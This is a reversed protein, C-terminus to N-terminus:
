KNVDNLLSIIDLINFEGDMNYDRVTKDVSSIDETGNVSKLILAADTEDVKSDNNVNGIYTIKASSPYLNSNDAKTGKYCYVTEISTCGTFATTRITTISSPIIVTKLSTCSAFANGDVRTVGNPIRVSTIGTGAFASSDIETIKIGNITEPIVVETDEGNYATIIGYAEDVEFYEEPTPKPVDSPMEGVYVIKVGTPYLSSDDATSGKYCYVSKLNSCEEFADDSISSVTYPIEITTIGYCGYFAYEGITELTTPLTISTLNECAEFALGDITKVGDPVAYETETINSPYHVLETGAKNFLIGDVSKYATNGADVTIKELKTCGEFADYAIDTVSESIKIKEVSTKGYFAGSGIGTVAVGGIITPVYVFIDSGKYNTIVGNNFTFLSEDTYVNEDYIYVLTAGNPYLSAYDATSNKVCYVTTISTGSFPYEGITKVSAPITVSTLNSCSSFAYSGISTVSDPITVSTLEYCGNFAYSGISTVSDPITGITLKHCNYFAYSGINKVSNPITVDTLGSCGYFVREEISEIGEPINISTLGSCNYFARVGINTVSNPINVSKMETCYYFAYEGISTVGKAINVDTLSYCYYFAYDGIVGDSTVGSSTNLTSLKKCNYFAYNGVSLIGTANNVTTLASCNYFVYNGIKDVGKGITVSELKSCGYFTYDGTSTVSDPITVSKLSTCNEFAYDDIKEVGTPISYDTTDSKVPLFIFEKGDKTLLGGNVTKYNNNKKVVNINQLNSCNRFANEGITEVSSPINISTLSSCGYFANDAIGTVDYEGLKEPITIDTDTGTYRTIEGTLTNFKFDGVTAINSPEVVTDAGGTDTYVSYVVPNTGQGAFYVEAGAKLGVRFTEYISAESDNTKSAVVTPKGGETVDGTFIYNTKLSGVKHDINITTDQKATIKFAVRYAKTEGNVTLITNVSNTQLWCNYEADGVRFTDGGSSIKYSLKQEAEITIKDGDYFVAGSEVEASAIFVDNSEESDEYAEVGVSEDITEAWMVNCNSLAVTAALVAGIIRKSKM